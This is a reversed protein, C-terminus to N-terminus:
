FRSNLGVRATTLDQQKSQDTLSWAFSVDTKVTWRFYTQLSYQTSNESLNGSLRDIGASLTVKRTVNWGLLANRTRDFRGPERLETAYATLNLEDTLRYGARLSITERFDPLNRHDASLWERRYEAILDSRSTPETDVLESIFRTYYVDAADFRHDETYGAQSTTRLRPLVIAQVEARAADTRRTRVNDLSEEGRNMVVNSSLAANWGSRIMFSGSETVIPERASEPYRAQSRNYRSTTELQRLASLRLNAHVGDEERALNTQSARLRTVNGGLDFGLWSAPRVTLQSTGRRDTTSQPTSSNDRALLARIETVRVPSISPSPTVTVKIYRTVQPSFSFEYRSFTTMFQGAIEGSIRSWTQNDPSSWVSWVLPAALTDTYLHIHDVTASSGFDLGFNHYVASSLDFEQSAPLLLNGDTLGSVEGLEGFDPTPDAAYLGAVAPLLVLSQTGSQDRDRENRDIVYLSTELQILKSFASLTQNLRGTHSRSLQDLKTRDNRIVRDSYEYVASLPRVTFSTGAGIRSSRTDFGILDLDNVDEAWDANAFVRTTTFPTSQFYGSVSQGTLENVNLRDRNARHLYEGRVTYKPFTWRLGATPQLETQWSQQSNDSQSQLHRFRCALQYSFHATPSATTFIMYQQDVATSSMTDTRAGTASASLTGGWEAHLKTAASFCLVMGCLASAM